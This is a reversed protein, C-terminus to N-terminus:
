QLTRPNDLKNMQEILQKAIEPEDEMLQDLDVPTSMAEIEERTKGKFMSTIEAVISDLDDQDEVDMHDFCGPEFIIKFEKDKDTM